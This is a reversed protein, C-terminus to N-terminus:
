QGGGQPAGGGGGSDGGMRNQLNSKRQKKMSVKGFNYSLRFNAVRSEWQSRSYSNFFETQSYNIWRNQFFPNQLSLSLTLKKKFLQQSISLWHWFSPISRGQIDRLQFWTSGGLSVSLGFKFRLNTYVSAYGSLSSFSLSADVKSADTYNHSLNISSNMSWIKTLKFNGSAEAGLQYNFGLNQPKSSIVGEKDISQINNWQGTAYNGFIGASISNQGWYKGYNVELSNTFSPRLYPNGQWLFRPDNYNPFPNVSWIWPRQVRRSFSFTMQQSEDMQYSFHLTPYVGFYKLRFTENTNQLLSTVFVQELRLGFKASWKEGFKQNYSGYLAHIQQIYDFDNSRMTDNVMSM